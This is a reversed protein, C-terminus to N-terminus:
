ENEIIRLYNQYETVTVTTGSGTHTVTPRSYTNIYGRIYFWADDSAGAGKYQLYFEDGWIIRIREKPVHNNYLKLVDEPFPYVIINDPFDGCTINHLLPIAINSDDRDFVHYIEFDLATDDCRTYFQFIELMSQKPVTIILDLSPSGSSYSVKAGYCWLYRTM